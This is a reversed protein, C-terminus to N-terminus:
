DQGATIRAHRMITLLLEHRDIPKALHAVMGAALCQEIAEQLVHATQGIVPLDPDIEHILRTAEYGGMVPMQIDMLVVHFAGAGAQRVAAVAQAGDSVTVLTSGEKNLMAQVVMQNVENDEALLIRLGSLREVRRTGSSDVDHASPAASGAPPEVLPLTVTFESGAGPRSQMMIQGQMLETIRRCIALGLGTGGFRRTTSSDAQEFASFIREAQEPSIGIGTDRVVFRLKDDLRDVTLVVEGRETFKVANGMLNLLVQKVRMPDTICLEPCGPERVVRLDLHRAAALPYISAVVEDLLDTLRVLAAEVRVKGAEIRSFDLVNDVIGLLTRGSELIKTFAERAVPNAHLDRHGVQAVGLVGNLPTRIEHSMNSLFDSRARALREAEHLAAERAEDLRRRETMDVFSVVAGVIEGDRVMPHTGFM